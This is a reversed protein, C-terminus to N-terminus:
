NRVLVTARGIQDVVRFGHRQLDELARGDYTVVRNFQRQAMAARYAGDQPWDAVTWPIKKGIYFYGGAGWIGDGVILLGTAEKARTARVIARFQDGRVGNSVGQFAFPLFGAALAVALFLPRLRTPIREILRPLGAAAVLALLVLAPYLFRPEKHGTVSIAVLYMGAAFLPASLRAGPKLLAAPLAIWGWAPFQAALIPLYFWFPEKGFQQAAQGSLVNFEVYARFSHFLSGWTWLDLLGLCAAIFAGGFVAYYLTQWRRRFVLWVLAALVMVASGYRLVVAMGLAGGGLLGARRLNKDRELAEFAILLFSTSLSESMTRGAFAVVPGYLAVALLAPLLPAGPPTRRQLFRYVAILSWAHLLYQPIELVSRYVRPNDIGLAACVKLLWGLFGPLAWNRLGQQWEWALIGYGHARFWAPELAQYVEDPHLRGLQLVALLAPVAAAALAWPLLPIGPQPAPPTEPTPDM